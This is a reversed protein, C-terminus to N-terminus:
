NIKDIRRVRISDCTRGARLDSDDTLFPSGSLTRGTLVIAVNRSMALSVRRIPTDVSGSPDIPPSAGGPTAITPVKAHPPWVIALM